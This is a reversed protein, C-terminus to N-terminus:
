LAFRQRDPRRGRQGARSQTRVPPRRRHILAYFGTVPEFFNVIVDPQVERVVDRVARVGRRYAPLQRVMSAVTAPISVKTANKAAFDPTAIKTIPAKIASAFYSPIERHPGAGLIVHAVQHGAKEAMEKVAIAQTMHGRGEGLVSFMLKM